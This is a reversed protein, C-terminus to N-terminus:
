ASGGGYIVEEENGSPSPAPASPAASRAGANDQWVPVSSTDAEPDSRAPGGSPPRARGILLGVILGVILLVVLLGIPLLWSGGGGSTVKTTLSSTPVFTAVETVPATVTVTADATSGSYAGTGTGSWNLFTDSANATATLDVITGSTVWSASATATGGTSSAVTVAFQTVFSVTVASNSGSVSVSATYNPVYRVGTTGPVIPVSLTYSGNLGSLVISTGGSGAVGQGGIAGISASWVVGTPLGTETVSLNYSAPAVNPNTMFNATETVPSTVTLSISATAASVSGAGTGIWNSFSHGATPTANLTVSSGGLEWYAGPAPTTTGNVSPSVTLAYSAAYTVALTGNAVVNLSGGSLTLSSTVQTPDYRVGFTGNPYATPVSLAYSGAVLGTVTFPAAETFAQTGVVVTVPIGSPIGSASVQLQFTPTVATFTALETVPGAPTFSIGSTTGTFSGAGSGTWGIFADGVAATANLVVSVGGHTWGVSAPTISGGGSATVTVFYEASFVATVMAPGSLAATGGPLVSFSSAGVTLPTVEFHALYGGVGNPGLVDSANLVYNGSGLTFSANSLPIGYSTGDLSLSWGTAGGPLGSAGFSVSSVLSATPMLMFSVTEIAGQLASIPSAFTTTGVWSLTANYPVNWVTYNFPGQGEDFAIVSSDSTNGQLTQNGLTVAWMTNAPLGTENFFYDYTVNTCVTSVGTGNFVESCSGIFNFNATENVPGVIKSSGNAITSNWSGSGVGTWSLFSLEYCDYCYFNGGPFAFTSASYNVVTNAPLWHGGSTPSIAANSCFDGGYAPCTFTSFSQAPPVTFVNLLVFPEYTVLISTPGTITGPSVPTINTGWAQGYSTNVWNASWSQNAGIPVGSVSLTAGAIGSRANGSLSASWHTGSPLAAENFSVVTGTGTFLASLTINTYGASTGWDCAGNTAWGSCDPDAWVLTPVNALTAFVATNGVWANSFTAGGNVVYPGLFSAGGNTSFLEVEDSPGCVLGFNYTGCISTNEFQTGLVLAGTSNLTLALDFSEDYAGGYPNDLAFSALIPQSWSVGMNTSTTVWPAPAGTECYSTGPFTFCGVPIVGGVYAVTLDGTAPDYLIQPDITTFAFNQEYIVSSAVTHVTFTSGNNTSTALVVDATNWYDTTCAYAQCPPITEGYNTTYAVMLEGHPGIIADPDNAVYPNYIGFYYGPTVPLDIQSGWSAGGNTSVVMHLGISGDYFYPISYNEWLLYLTQGSSVLDPLMPLKTYTAGFTPNTTTNIATPSTWSVGNNYSFTIVLQAYQFNRGIVDGYEPLCSPCYAGSRGVSYNFEIYALAFTGNGLVTVTPQWASTYNLAQSCDPNGLYSPSTWSSGNNTTSVVGVETIAWATSNACPSDNTYATYALVADGHPSVAIAPSNTNNITSTGPGSPVSTPTGNVPIPVQTSTFFTGRGSSPPTPPARALSSSSPAATGPTNGARPSTLGIGGPPTSHALLASPPLALADHTATPARPTAVSPLVAAHASAAHAVTSPSSGALAGGGFPTAGSLVFIAVLGVVAALAARRRIAPSVRNVFSKM